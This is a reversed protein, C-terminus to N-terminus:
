AHRDGKTLHTLKTNEQLNKVLLRREVRYELGRQMACLLALNELMDNMEKVFHKTQVGHRRQVDVYVLVVHSLDFTGTDRRAVIEYRAPSRMRFSFLVPIDRYAQHMGERM